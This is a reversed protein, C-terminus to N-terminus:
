GTPGSLRGPMDGLVYAYTALVAVGHAVDDPDLKDPTDAASHHYLFYRSSDSGLSLTPVGRRLLPGIDAGPGGPGASFPGAPELFGAIAQILPLSAEDGSFGLHTPRFFGADSEIAVVHDSLEERHADRYGVGGRLGNEENTWGVLRLTRRPRLGLRRIVSIAEWAAMFGGADDMAGQGVDWSDIHGGLVVVEHPLERGPLEAVINRSPADPLTEAGMELHVTVADGRNAMRHLLLAHEVSVAAAPIQAVEPDYRLGGTHPNQMSGSAVSRVLAAVAGHRAAEAAGRIRYAVTQGYSVFPADFLVIRGAVQDKVAELEEFSSVVVVPATIGGPPTGVSGGLGLMSLGMRRPSELTLSEDGRVWHPVMVPEGHVNEFNCRVLEELAWDIAHELADSGSLRPGFTDTWLATRDWAAHSGLAEAMIRRSAERYRQSLEEPTLVPQSQSSM